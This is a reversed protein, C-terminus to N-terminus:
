IVQKKYSCAEQRGQQQVVVMDLDGEEFCDAQSLTSIGARAWPAGLERM